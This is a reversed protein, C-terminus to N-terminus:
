ARGLLSSSAYVIGGGEKLVRYMEDLVKQPEAVHELVFFSTVIDAVSSEIPVKTIDAYIDANINKEDIDIGIYKHKEVFVAYPKQGCGFDYISLVRDKPLNEFYEKVADIVFSYQLFLPNWLSKEYEFNRNRPNTNRTQM